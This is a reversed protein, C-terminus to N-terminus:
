RQPLRQQCSQPLSLVTDLWSAGAARTFMRMSGEVFPVSYQRAGALVNDYRADTTDLVLTGAKTGANDVLISMRQFAKM